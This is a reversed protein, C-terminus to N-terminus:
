IMANLALSATAAKTAMRGAASYVPAREKGRTAEASVAALLGDGVSKLRLLIKGNKLVVRQFQDLADILSQRLAPDVQNLDVPKLSKVFGLGLGYSHSLREKEDMLPKIASPRQTELLHNEEDILSTLRQTVQLLSLLKENVPVGATRLQTLPESTM